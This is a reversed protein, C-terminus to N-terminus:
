HYLKTAKKYSRGTRKSARFVFFFPKFIFLDIHLRHIHRYFVGLLKARDEPSIYRCKPQKELEENRAHMEKQIEQRRKNIIYGPCKGFKKAYIYVPALGSKELDHFDGNRTDCFKPKPRKPAACVVQKINDKKFNKCSSDKCPSNCDCLDAKKPIPPKRSPLLCQKPSQPVQCRVGCDKRLFHRPCHLPVEAFGMTKHHSLVAQREERVMKEFKSHHRPLKQVAAREKAAVSYINEDHHVINIISM